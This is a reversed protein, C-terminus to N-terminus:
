NRWIRSKLYVILKKRLLMFLSQEAKSDGNRAREYLANAIFNDLVNHLVFVARKISFTNSNVPYLREVDSIAMKTIEQCKVEMDNYKALVNYAQINLRAIPLFREYLKSTIEVERINENMGAAPMPNNHLHNGM